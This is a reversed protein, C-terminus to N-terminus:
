AASEDPAIGSRTQRLTPRTGGVGEALLASVDIGQDVFREQHPPYGNARVLKGAVTHFISELEVVDGEVRGSVAVIERVRRRRAATTEVHVVLDVAGAVTPVVFRSGINQGALLPLTCMKTVAERASNAHITGMGPVGSNLAILLDLAEERRVEGVVIRDPRMRLAEVVLRRLSIGGTGELGASRTQLAVVDALQPRLEFVEEVTIVRHHAPVAALLCNLMTTKGAQTGGSVLINLGCQVSAQLLRAAPGTVTDNGVLDELRSARLLHKRINVAWHTRTVDPIAVHLRSGDPLMADVFPVSFDVRRGSQRLMREVLDRVQDDTLVTTTLESRGNRAVFVRSPENIWIEEIEDDDLHRQLPGFGAVLDTVEAVAAAPDALAAGDNGLNDEEFASVVRAVVDRARWPETVPDIGTDRIESRVRDEIVRLADVTGSVGVGGHWGLGCASSEASGADNWLPCIRRKASWPDFALRIGASV